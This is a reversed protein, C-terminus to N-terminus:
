RLSRCRENRAVAKGFCVSCMVTSRRCIKRRRCDRCLGKAIAAERLAKERAAKKVLYADGREYHANRDEELHPGCMSRGITAKKRCGDWLCIGNSRKKARHNRCHEAARQLCDLCRVRGPSPPKFCTKGKCVKAVM